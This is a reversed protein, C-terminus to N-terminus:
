GMAVPERLRDLVDPECKAPCRRTRSPVAHRHIAYETRQGVRSDAGELLSLAHADIADDARVSPARQDNHDALATGSIRDTPHLLFELEV